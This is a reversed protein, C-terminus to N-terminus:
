HQQKRRMAGLGVLGMGLLALSAPEPVNVPAPPSALTASGSVSTGSKSVSETFSIRLSAEGADFGSLGDAPTFLGLLYLDLSSSSANSSKSVITLATETFTGYNIGDGYLTMSFGSDSTLSLLGNTSVFTMAGIGALDGTGDSTTIGSSFNLGTLASSDLALGPQSTTVNFFAIADSGNITSAQVSHSALALLCATCMGLLRKLIESGTEFSLFLNRGRFASKM